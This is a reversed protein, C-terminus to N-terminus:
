FFFSITVLSIALMIVTITINLVNSLRSNVKDGLIKKNNAICLIIILLPGALIGNATASYYLMAIPDIHLINLLAGCLTAIAIVAYFGKAQTLKKELGLSLNFSEAIAYSASGALVPIALLGTGIIGIAFLLTAYEGAFPTLSSALDNASIFSTHVNGFLVSSSTIIIFFTIINSALMGIITDERMDKMDSSTVHPKEKGYFHLKKHALEDEVEENAQWFFLYPSITTGLMATINILFNKDFSFHPTILSSFIHSWNHHITFATIIYAIVTFAFWKLIRVYIHYPIFTVAFLTFATLLLLAVSSPLPSIMTVSQAMAGLDAGINIINAISLLAVSFFLLKKSYHNRLIGAIGNGTTMGIRGCMEQVAIMFPITYFALWLQSLGFLAGTQAYTGIGSPDDDAIGTIFGPGLKKLFSTIKKM